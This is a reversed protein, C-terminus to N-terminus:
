QLIFVSAKMLNQNLDISSNVNFFFGKWSLIGGLITAKGNWVVSAETVEVVIERKKQKTKKLIEPKVDLFFFSIDIVYSNTVNHNIATIFM